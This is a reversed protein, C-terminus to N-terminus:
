SRRGRLWPFRRRPPKAVFRELEAAIEDLDHPRSYPEMATCRGVINTLVEPVQPPIRGTLGGAGGGVTLVTQEPTQGAFPEILALAACLSIGFGWVDALWTVPGWSSDCAEPATWQPDWSRMRTPSIGTGAWCMGAGQIVPEGRHNLQLTTPSVDLHWLGRRHARALTRAWRAFVRALTALHEASQALESARAADIASEVHGWAPPPDELLDGLHKEDGGESLEVLVARLSPGRNHARIVFPVHNLRAVEMIPLMGRVDCRAAFRASSEIAEREGPTFWGRLVVLERQVERDVSALLYVTGLSADELRRQIPFKKLDLREVEERRAPEPVAVAPVLAGELFSECDLFSELDDALEPYRQLFVTRDPVKGANRLDQIEGIVEALKEERDDM